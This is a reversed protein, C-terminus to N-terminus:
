FGKGIWEDVNAADIPQNNLVIESPIEEGKALKYAYQIGEPACYPYTITLDFIGDKVAQIALEEGDVGIIVAEDERGASELAKLAGFAMEDNHAYIADIEGPGYKQLMDEMFKLANERLYDCYQEGIIAMDPYNVLEEVFGNHRDNTASAGATGQIEIIKGVGNLKENLFKAAYEGIPKNEAGIHANVETDVKRDITIVKIGAEMARKAAGTLAESTLPSLMLVDVGRAILDDVDSVQKTADNQGDTVIFEVDPLNEEVWKKNGEVMAVRWPHNTTCQSFGIVYKDKEEVKADSSKEEVKADSSENSSRSGCGVFSVVMMVAVLFVVISKKLVNKM